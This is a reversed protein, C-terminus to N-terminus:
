HWGRWREYMECLETPDPRKNSCSFYVNLDDPSLDHEKCYEFLEDEDRFFRDECFYSADGDPIPLTEALLWKEREPDTMTM